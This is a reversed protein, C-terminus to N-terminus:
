TRCRCYMQILAALRVACQIIESLRQGYMHGM